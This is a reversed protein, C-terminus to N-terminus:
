NPKTNDAYLRAQSRSKLRPTASAQTCLRALFHAALSRTAAPSFDVIKTESIGKGNHRSEEQQALGTFRNLRMSDACRNIKRNSIISLKSVLCELTFAINLIAFSQRAGCFLVGFSAKKRL